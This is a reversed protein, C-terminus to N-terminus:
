SNGTSTASLDRLSSTLTQWGCYQLDRWNRQHTNGGYERISVRYFMLM